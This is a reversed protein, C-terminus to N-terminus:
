FKTSDSDLVEYFFNGDPCPCKGNPTSQIAAWVEWLTFAADVNSCGEEAITPLPINNLYSAISVADAKEASYLTKYFDQFTSNFILPDCIIDGNQTRWGPCRKRPKKRRLSRTLATSFLTDVCHPKLQMGSQLLPCLLIKIIPSLSNWVFTCFSDSNLFSTNFRWITTKPICFLPNMYLYVPAHYSFVISDMSCTQVSHLFNKPIFFYDLRSYSNNPHSYFTYDRMKPNLHWWIDILGADACVNKLVASSRPNSINASSSKDLSANM